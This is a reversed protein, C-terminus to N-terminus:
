GRSGPGNVVLGTCGHRCRIRHIIRGVAQGQASYQYEVMADALGRCKRCRETERKYGPMADEM